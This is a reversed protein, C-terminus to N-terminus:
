WQGPAYASRADTMGAMSGSADPLACPTDDVCAVPRRKTAVAVGADTACSDSAISSLNWPTACALTCAYMPACRAAEASPASAAAAAPRSAACV